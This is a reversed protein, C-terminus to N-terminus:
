RHGMRGDILGRDIITEAITEALLHAGVETYHVEDIHHRLDKPITAAGDVFITGEQTAVSRTVANFAELARGLSGTSAYSATLIGTEEVFEYRGYLRAFEDTTMSERYTFAQSVLIVGAGDSHVYQVLRELHRRFPEISRYFAIPFDEDRFRLTSFWANALKHLLYKKIYGELPIGRAASIAQAYHHTYNDNYEGIAFNPHSFSRGIDNIAHMVIVLDPEWAQAYTVYNILSHKSTYWDQGANIVEIDRRGTRERLVRELVSTYRDPGAVEFGKTTSGGLALIRFTTETESRAVPYQEELPESSRQLYPDFRYERSYDYGIHAIVYDLGLLVAAPVLAFAVMRAGKRRVAWGLLTPIALPTAVALLVLLYSRSYGLFLPYLSRHFLFGTFFSGYAVYFAVRAATWHRSTQMVERM